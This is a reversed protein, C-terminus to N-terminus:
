NAYLVAQVGAWRSAATAYHAGAQELDGEALADLSSAIESASDDIALQGDSFMGAVTGYDLELMSDDDFADLWAGLDELLSVVAGDFGADDLVEAARELRQRAETMHTRYRVETSGHGLERIEREEPLFAAFWRLPVHWSSTLIHSRAQPRRTTLRELEAAARVVVREPALTSGVMGPHSNRFALLGELM